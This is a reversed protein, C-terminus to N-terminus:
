SIGSSAPFADVLQILDRLSMDAMSDLRLNAQDTHTRRTLENPVWVTFLNAGRAALIGNISDEFVIVNSPSIGLDQVVLNFLAPDPKTRVVDDSGRVSDFYASLGLRQLHGTVWQCTSSSALGIGLGLARAEQLYDLVGPMITRELILDMERQQHKKNIETRPLLTGVQRQLEEFPDFGNETTGIYGAWIDFTLSCGYEQYIERWSQYIPVETDLILGDFDFILAEIM